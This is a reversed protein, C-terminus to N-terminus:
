ATFAENRFLAAAYTVPATAAIAAHPGWASRGMERLQYHTRCASGRAMRQYYESM